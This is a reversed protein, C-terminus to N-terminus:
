SDLIALDVLVRDFRGNRRAQTPQACSETRYGLEQADVRIQDGDCCLATRRQIGIVSERLQGAPQRLEGPLALVCKQQPDGPTVPRPHAGFQQGATPPRSPRDLGAVAGAPGRLSQERLGPPAPFVPLTHGPLVGLSPSVPM